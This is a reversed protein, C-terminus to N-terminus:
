EEPWRERGAWVRREYRRNAGVIRRLRVRTKRERKRETHTCGSEIVKSTYRGDGRNLFVSGPLGSKQTQTQLDTVSLTQRSEKTKRM